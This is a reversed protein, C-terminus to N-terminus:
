IQEKKKNRYEQAKLKKYEKLQAAKEPDQNIAERQKRAREKAAEKQDETQEKKGYNERRKELEIKKEEETRGARKNAMWEAKYEKIDLTKVKEKILIGKERRDKEAWVRKYEKIDQIRQEQEEETKLAICNSKNNNQIYKDAWRLNELSNNSRNRDIHDIEPLNDPNPIYQIALLRHLYKKSKIHNKSLTFCLYDEKSQPALMKKTTESWLEGNKNIKYFGEYEKLDEFNNEILYNAILAEM